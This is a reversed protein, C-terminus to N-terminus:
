QIEHLNFSVQQKNWLVKGVAKLEEHQVCICLLCIKSDPM